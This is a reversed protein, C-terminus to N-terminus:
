ALPAPKTWPLLEAPVVTVLTELGGDPDNVMEKSVGVAM